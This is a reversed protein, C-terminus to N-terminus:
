ETLVPNFSLRQLLKYFFEHFVCNKYFEDLTNFADLVIRQREDERTLIIHVNTKLILFTGNFQYTPETRNSFIPIPKSM